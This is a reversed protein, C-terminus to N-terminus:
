ENALSGAVGEGAYADVDPAAADVSGDKQSALESAHAYFHPVFDVTRQYLADLNHLARRLPRPSRPQRIHASNLMIAATHLIHNPQIEPLLSRQTRCISPLLLTLARRRRHHATLLVLPAPLLPLITEHSIAYCPPIYQVFM